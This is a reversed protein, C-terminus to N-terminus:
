NKTDGIRLILLNLFVKKKDKQMIQLIPKLRGNSNGDNFLCGSFALDNGGLLGRLYTSTSQPM